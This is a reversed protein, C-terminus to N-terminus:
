KECARWMLGLHANTNQDGVTLDRAPDSDKNAAASDDLVYIYIHQSPFPSLGLVERISVLAALQDM